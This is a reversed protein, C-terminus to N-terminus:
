IVFVAIAFVALIVAAIITPKALAKYNVIYYEQRPADVPAPKEEAIALQKEDVPACVQEEEKYLNAKM